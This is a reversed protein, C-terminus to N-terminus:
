HARQAMDAQRTLSGNPEVPRGNHKRMATQQFLWTDQHLRLDHLVPHRPRTTNQIGSQAETENCPRTSSARARTADQLLFGDHFFRNENGFARSVLRRPATPESFLNWESQCGFIAASAEASDWGKLCGDCDPTLRGNALCALLRNVERHRSEEVLGFTFFFSTSCQEMSIAGGALSLGRWEGSSLPYSCDGM